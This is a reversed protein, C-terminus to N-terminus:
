FGRKELTRVPRDNCREATKATAPDAARLPPPAVIGLPMAMDGMIMTTDIGPDPDIWQRLTEIPRTAAIGRDRAHDHSGSLAFSAGTILFALGAAVRGLLGAMRKRLARLGLPCNDFLITGDSRRYLRGCLRGETELILRQVEAERMGSLNYVNLECDRCYRVRHDGQMDEWRADCPAAIEIQQLSITRPM